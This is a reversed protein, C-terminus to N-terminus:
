SGGGLSAPVKTKAGPVSSVPSPAKFVVAARFVTEDSPCGDASSGGGGSDSESKTSDTLTVDEVGHLRRLRVLMTAVDRHDPACGTLQMQPGAVAGATAGSTAGSGSGGGATSADLTSVHVDAPIVRALERLTREWDFRTGALQAVSAERTAKVAAFDGFPALQTARAGAAETEQKVKATDQERSSVQNATLVYAVVAILMFALAGVVM